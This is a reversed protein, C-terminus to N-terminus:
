AEENETGEEAADNGGLYLERFKYMTEGTVKEVDVGAEVVAKAVIEPDIKGNDAVIKSLEALKEEPLESVLSRDLEVLLKNKLEKFIEAKYPEDGYEIGKEDMLGVIFLNIAQDDTLNIKADNNQM